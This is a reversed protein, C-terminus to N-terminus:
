THTREVRVPPVSLPFSKVSSARGLSVSTVELGDRDDTTILGAALLLFRFALGSAETVQCGLAKALTSLDFWLNDGGM